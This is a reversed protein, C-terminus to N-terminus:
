NSTDKVAIKFTLTDTHVGSKTAYNIYDQTTTFKLTVYDGIREYGTKIDKLIPHETGAPVELVDQTNSVIGDVVTQSDSSTRNIYYPIYSDVYKLYYIGNEGPNASTLNVYLSKGDNLLVNTANVQGTSVFTGGLNAFDFSAPVVVEYKDLLTYKVDMGKETPNEASVVGAMTLVVALAILIMLVKKLKM